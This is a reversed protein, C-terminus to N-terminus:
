KTSSILTTARNKDILHVFIQLSMFYMFYNKNKM